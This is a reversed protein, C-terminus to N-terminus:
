RGTKLRGRRFLRILIVVLVVLLLAQLVTLISGSIAIQKDKALWIPVLTVASILLIVSEWRHSKNM